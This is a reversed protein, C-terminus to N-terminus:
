PRDFAWRSVNGRFRYGIRRYISNATPNAADTSLFCSRRGGALLDATLAATLASAYGRGRLEPPTYVPGVRIGTPTPGAYGALSVPGGDDWVVLGEGPETLRRTVFAEADTGPSGAPMAEAFFAEMWAVATSRDDEVCPRMRGLVDRPPVVETAEYLLEAFTLRATVGAAAAWRSAFRDSGDSPGGVGPLDAGAAALSNVLADVAPDTARSLVLNHPPTRAAVTVVEHGDLVAALYPDEDGYYRPNRALPERFGLILSHLAEDRGLFEGVRAFFPV